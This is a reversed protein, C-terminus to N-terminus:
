RTWLTHTTPTKKMLPKVQPMMATLFGGMDEPGFTSQSPLHLRVTDKERVVNVIFDEWACRGEVVGEDTTKVEGHGHEHRGYGCLGTAVEMHLVRESSADQAERTSENCGRECVM